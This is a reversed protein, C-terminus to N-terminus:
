VQRFSMFNKSFSVESQKAQEKSANLEAKLRDVEQIFRGSGAHGVRARSWFLLSGQSSGEQVGM